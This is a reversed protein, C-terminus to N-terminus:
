PCFKKKIQKNLESRSMIEQSLFVNFVSELDIIEQDLDFDPEFYGCRKTVNYRRLLDFLDDDSISKLSEKGSNHCISQVYRYILLTLFVTLFHGDIRNDASHNITRFALQQKMVRFADEIFWRFRMWRVVEEEKEESLSTSVCYYGDLRAQKDILARNLSYTKEKAVEGEETSSTESLLSRPDAPGKARARSPNAIMKEAKEILLGRQRADRLAYSLSYSVIFSEEIWRDDEGSRYKKPKKDRKVEYRRYLTLGLLHKIRDRIAKAKAPDPEGELEESLAAYGERMSKPTPFAPDSASWPKGEGFVYDKLKDESMRRVPVVTIFNRNGLGNFSRIDRSSLGADTVTVFDAHGFDKIITEELPILHKTEQASGKFTVYSVRALLEGINFPKTIYDDAGNDLAAVKEDEKERASVVIIPTSNSASRISSLVEMGDIDPLGLDLLVLSPKESLFFSIATIGNEALATVYNHSKLALDVFHSIVPDDEVVLIKKSM